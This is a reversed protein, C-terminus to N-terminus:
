LAPNAFAVPSIIAVPLLGLKEKKHGHDLKFRVSYYFSLFLLISYSIIIKWFFGFTIFSETIRVIPIIMFVIMLKGPDNLSEVHSLSLLCFAILISYMIFGVAENINLFIESLVLALVLLLVIKKEM